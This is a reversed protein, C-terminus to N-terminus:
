LTEEHETCNFTIETSDMRQTILVLMSSSYYIKEILKLVKYYLPPIILKRM